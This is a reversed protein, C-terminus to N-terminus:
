AVGALELRKRSLMEAEKAEYEKRRIAWLAHLLQVRMEYTARKKGREINSLTGRDVDAEKSLAVLSVGWQERLDRLGSVYESKEQSMRKRERACEKCTGYSYRGVVHTDHDRVCYRKRPRGSM